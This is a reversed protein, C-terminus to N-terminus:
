KIIAYDDMLELMEQPHSLIRQIGAKRLAEVPRFGWDVGIIAMGANFAAQADVETDGVLVTQQVFTGMAQAASLLGLPDPKRPLDAREGIVCVFPHEPFHLDVLKDLFFQAKNSVVAMPVQHERLTTVLAKIGPYPQTERTFVHAYAANFVSLAQQADINAERPLAKRVLEGLGHGLYAMVDQQTIPACGYHALMANAATTLDPVTNLLTGDLDFIVGDM